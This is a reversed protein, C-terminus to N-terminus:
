KTYVKTSICFKKKLCHTHTIKILFVKFGQSTHSLQNPTMGCLSLDWTQNGTLACAQTAPETGPQFARSLCGISMEREYQHKEGERKGERGRRRFIFLLLFNFIAQLANSYIFIYYLHGCWYLPVLGYRQFIFERVVYDCKISM